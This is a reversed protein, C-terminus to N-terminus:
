SARNQTAEARSGTTGSISRSSASKGPRARSSIPSSRTLALGFSLLTTFPQRAAFCGQITM